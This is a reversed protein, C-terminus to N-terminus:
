VQPNTFVYTNMKQLIYQTGKATTLLLTDNIHGNGFSENKVIPGDFAFADIVTQLEKCM